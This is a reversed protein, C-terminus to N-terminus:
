GALGPGVVSERHFWSWSAAWVASVVEEAGEEDGQGGGGSIGPSGM